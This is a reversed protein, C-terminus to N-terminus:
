EALIPLHDSVCRTERDRPVQVNVPKLHKSVFIHDLRFMPYFSFFTSRPYGEQGTLVQVDKLRGALDRYIVSRFGANIDGCFVIPDEAPMGGLWAPGLLAQMQLRRERIGLSLHTNLVCVEGLPSEIRALMAGRRENGPRSLELPLLDQKMELVPFRSLLALGYHERGSTLVPFFTYEMDLYDALFRAQHFGHTRQKHVDVEQLAIVDADLSNLREATKLPNIKGDMHLCRHINYTLVKLRPESKKGPVTPQLSQRHKKLLDLVHRRVDLPRLYSRDDDVMMPLLVFGRTEETGPGGHAGSEISFTLPQQDPSWGSVVLDGANKHLCVRSLDRITEELFPHRSGLVEPGASELDHLGQRTAAKVNQGELFLVLPINAKQVLDRALQRLEYVPIPRPLYVHGIPGMSTTEVQDLWPSLFSEQSNRRLPRILSRIRLHWRRDAKPEPFSPCVRNNSCNDLLVERVAQHLSKGMEQRYSKVNEQGHDSYVILRYARCDSRLATHYIDGLVGDIGKLSWHAFRSDPGRRHSQEDYGNLNAHVVPLGRAVDMKVRFRIMERLLICLLVRTPIFKLEKALSEGRFVGQFFDTVSLVFELLAEGFMRIFKPFHLLLIVLFNLPRAARLLSQLNMSQVCYRAEAAGGRYFNAYSSGGALLPTGGSGSLEGAVLDAAEYSYMPLRRKLRREIFEFAPVATKVGFFLEGQVAPTTSPQGSYLPRLSFKHDRLLSDVFPLRNGKLGNLLQTYALGDVQIIVVGPETATERSTSLGLLRLSWESRSLKKRLRRFFTNIRGIM